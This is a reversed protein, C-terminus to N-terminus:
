FEFLFINITMPMRPFCNHSVLLIEEHPYSLYNNVFSIFRKLGIEPSTAKEIKNMEEDYLKGDTSTLGHIRTAGAQIETSPIMYTEFEHWNYGLVALNLPEISSHNHRTDLGTTAM